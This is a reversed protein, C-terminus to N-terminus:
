LFHSSRPPHDVPDPPVDLRHAIPPLGVRDTVIYRPALDQLASADVAGLCLACIGAPAESTHAQPSQEEHTCGDPCCFGDMANLSAFLMLMVAALLKRVRQNDETQFMEPAPALEAMFPPSVDTAM